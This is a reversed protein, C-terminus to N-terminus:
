GLQKENHSTTSSLTCVNWSIQNRLNKNVILWSESNNCFSNILVYDLLERLHCNFKSSSDAFLARYFHRKIFYWFDIFLLTVCCGIETLKECIFSLHELFVFFWSSYVNKIFWITFRFLSSVFFDLYFRLMAAFSLTCCM